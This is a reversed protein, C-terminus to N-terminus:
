FNKKNLTFQDIIVGGQTIFQFQLTTSTLITFKSYGYETANIVTTWAPLPKLESPPGTLTTVGAAGSVIHVTAGPNIEPTGYCTQNFVPCTREYWHIHGWFAIDVNNLFIPELHQRLLASVEQDDDRSDNYIDSAYMPRHGAVIIWPTKTKNISNIDSFIWEWQESGTTFNHETSIVTFHISSYEFSYWYPDNGNQSNPMNFRNAYPVGCEGGSDNGNYFSM